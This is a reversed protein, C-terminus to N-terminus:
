GLPKLFFWVWCVVSVLFPVTLPFTRKIGKIQDLLRAKDDYSLAGIIRLLLFLSAWIGFILSLINLFSNM